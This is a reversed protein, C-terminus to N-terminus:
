RRVYFHAHGGKLRQGTPGLEPGRHGAEARRAAVVLPRGARGAVAEMPWDTHGTVAMPRATHGTVAM